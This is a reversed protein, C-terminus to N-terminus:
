LSRALGLTVQIARLVIRASDDSSVLATNVVVEATSAPEYPDSIGTVEAVIGARGKAYLGKPDREECVELPTSVYVELFPLQAAAMAERVLRRHHRKPSVFAALVVLGSSAILRAVAAARRINETRGDPSFDLEPTVCKRFEDGDLLAARWGAELLRQQVALAVTTKGAAPLGTFWVVGGPHAVSVLADNSSRRRTTNLRSHLM